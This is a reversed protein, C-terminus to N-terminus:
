SRQQDRAPDTSVGILKVVALDLDLLVDFVQRFVHFEKIGVDLGGVGLEPAELGLERAGTQCQGIGLSTHLSGGIFNGIKFAPELGCTLGTVM